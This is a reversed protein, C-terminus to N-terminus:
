TKHSRFYVRWDEFASNAVFMNHIYELEPLVGHWPSYAQEKALYRTLDFADTYSIKNLIALNFADDLLQARNDVSIVTHDSLLQDRILGYNASDYLVRYYGITLFIFIHM